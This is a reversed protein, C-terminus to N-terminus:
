ILNEPSSIEHFQYYSSVVVEMFSEPYFNPHLMSISFLPVIFVISWILLKVFLNKAKLIALLWRVVLATVAIPLM